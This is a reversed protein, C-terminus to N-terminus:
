LATETVGYKNLAATNLIFEHCSRHWTVIPRNPSIEDLQARYIPGHFYHHYGWTFLTENPDADAMNALATRLRAVYDEQNQVAASFKGPVSWDEISIIELAMTLAGLLPHVHHEVFGPMIVQNEFTRDITYSRQGGMAAEVEELSGITLIRGEAIGVARAEPQDPEMTIVKKSLFITAPATLGQVAEEEESLIRIGETQAQAPGDWLNGGIVAAAFAGTGLLFKRRTLHTVFQQFLPNCCICSRIQSTM